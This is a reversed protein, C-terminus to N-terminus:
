LVFGFCMEDMREFLGNLWEQWLESLGGKASLRGEGVWRAARECEQMNAPPGALLQIAAPLYSSPCCLWM